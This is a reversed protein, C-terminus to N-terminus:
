RYLTRIRELEADTVVRGCCSSAHMLRDPEGDPAHDLGVVHGLEHELTNPDADGLEVWIGESVPDYHFFDRKGHRIEVGTTDLHSGIRFLDFGAKGNWFRVAEPIRQWLEPQDARLTIPAVGHYREDFNGCASFGCALLVFLAHRM